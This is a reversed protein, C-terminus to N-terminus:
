YKQIKIKNTIYYLLIERKLFKKFFTHFIKKYLILM